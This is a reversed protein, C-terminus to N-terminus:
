VQSREWARQAAAVDSCPAEVFFDVLLRPVTTDSRMLKAAPPIGHARTEDHIARDIRCGRNKLYDDMLPYCDKVCDGM